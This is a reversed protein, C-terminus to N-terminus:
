KEWISNNRTQSIKKLGLVELEKKINNDTEKRTEVLISIEKSEKITNQM